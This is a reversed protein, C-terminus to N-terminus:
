DWGGSNLHTIITVPFSTSPSTKLRGAMGIDADRIINSCDM